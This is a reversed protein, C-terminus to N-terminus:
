KLDCFCFLFIKTYVSKLSPNFPSSGRKKIETDVIYLDEVYYEGMM